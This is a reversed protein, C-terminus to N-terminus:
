HVLVCCAKSARRRVYRREEGIEGGRGEGGRGEGGRGEGGRGEGGRREGGRGEEGEMREEGGRGEGERRKGGRGEGERWATWTITPVGPRRSSKTSFPTALMLSHPMRTSSSASLSREISTCCKKSRMM